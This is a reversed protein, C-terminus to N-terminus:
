LCMFSPQAAIWGSPGLGCSPAALGIKRMIAEATTGRFTASTAHAPQAPCMGVAAIKDAAIGEVRILQAKSSGRTIEVVSFDM